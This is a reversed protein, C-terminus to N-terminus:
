LVAEPTGRDDVGYIRWLEGERRRRVQRFSTYTRAVYRSADRSALAIYSREPYSSPIPCHSEPLRKPVYM